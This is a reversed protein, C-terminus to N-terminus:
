TGIMLTFIRSTAHERHHHLTNTTHSSLPRQEERLSCSVCLADCCPQFMKCIVKCSKFDELLTLQDREGANMSSQFRLVSLLFVGESCNALSGKLFLEESYFLMLWEGKDTLWKNQVGTRCARKSDVCCSKVCFAQQPWARRNSVDPSLCVQLNLLSGAASFLLLFGTSIALVNKLCVGKM